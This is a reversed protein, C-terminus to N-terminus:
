DNSLPKKNLVKEKFFKVEKLYNVFSFAAGTFNASKLERLQECVENPNGKIIKSGCSSAITASKSKMIKYLTKKDAIAVNKIFNHVAVKDQELESYQSHFDDAELNSKRCIIHIPTYLEIKKGQNKAQSILDKNIKKTREFNDFMTFLIKCYKTAFKRGDSSYAASVLPIDRKNESFVEANKIQFFKGSFNIKKNTNTLNTFIKTWEAGYMYRNSSFEKNVKYFMQYENENWGCVLNLGYRKPYASLITSAAKAAFVPHVFPLHVTSYFLIKNTIPLLLSAFNFTEYSLTNPNTEGGWGKWKSLPLIFDFNNRDVYKVLEIIEKWNAKWRDKNKTLSLGSSSNIGFLGIYFKKKM